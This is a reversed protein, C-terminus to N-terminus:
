QPNEVLLRNYESLHREDSFKDKNEVAWTDKPISLLSDLAEIKHDVVPLATVSFLLGALSKGPM